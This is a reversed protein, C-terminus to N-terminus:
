AARFAKAVHGPDVQDTLTGGRLEGAALYRMTEGLPMDFRLEAGADTM